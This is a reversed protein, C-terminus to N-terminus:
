RKVINVARIAGARRCPYNKQFFFFFVASQIEPPSKNHFTKAPCWFNLEGDETHPLWVSLLLRTAHPWGPSHICESRGGEASWTGEDKLRRWGRARRHREEAGEDPCFAPTLVAGEEEGRKRGRGGGGKGKDTAEELSAREMEPVGPTLKTSSCPPLSHLSSTSTFLPPLSLFSLFSPSCRVQLCFSLKPRAARNLTLAENANWFRRGATNGGWPRRRVLWRTM